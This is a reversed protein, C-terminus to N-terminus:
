VWLLRRSLLYIQAEHLFASCARNQTYYVDPLRKYCVCFEFLRLSNILILLSLSRSPFFPRFHILLSLRLGPFIHVYFILSRRFDIWLFIIFSLPIMSRSNSEYHAKIRFAKKLNYQTNQTNNIHLFRKWNRLSWSFKSSKSGRNASSAHERTISIYSCSILLVKFMLSIPWIKLFPFCTTFNVLQLFRATLFVPIKGRYYLSCLFSNLLFLPLLRM